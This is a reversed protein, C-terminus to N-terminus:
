FAEVVTFHMLILTMDPAFMDYAEFFRRHERRWYALTRDGEGEAFAHAEDVQDYSRVDVSTLKIACAPEGRGDVVVFIDGAQPIGDEDLNSCTATKSGNLILQVLEDALAENDGFAWREAQEYHAPIVKAM